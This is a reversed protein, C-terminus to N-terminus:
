APNHAHGLIHDSAPAFRLPRFLFRDLPDIHFGAATIAEDTHRNPHCGGGCRKWLPTILDEITGRIAGTSRVHEYFRLEGGPKLVRRIEALARAPDPVSCLVLSTVAADFTHDEAPLADAHGAVVRVPVAARTAAQEARARLQDEPEVAVVESVTDPYHTFNLGTGAGVEIVRGALGSLMRARHATAGRRESEASIREYARAFRPHQFRELDTM